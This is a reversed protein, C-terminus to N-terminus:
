YESKGDKVFPLNKFARGSKKSEFSTTKSLKKAKQIYAIFIM